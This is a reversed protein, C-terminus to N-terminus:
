AGNVWLRVHDLGKEVEAAAEDEGDEGVKSSPKAVRVDGVRENAFM